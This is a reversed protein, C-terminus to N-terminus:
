YMAGRTFAARAIYRPHIESIDPAHLELPVLMILLFLVELGDLDAEIDGWMERVDGWIERM